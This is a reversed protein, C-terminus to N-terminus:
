WAGFFRQFVFRRAQSELYSLHSGADVPQDPHCNDFLYRLAGNLWHKYVLTPTSVHFASLLMLVEGALVLSVMKM